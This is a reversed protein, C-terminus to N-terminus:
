RRETHYPTAPARGPAWPYFESRIQPPDAQVSSFLAGGDLDYQQQGLLLRVYEGLTFDLVIKVPLIVFGTTAPAINTLTQYSGDIHVDIAGTQPTIVV